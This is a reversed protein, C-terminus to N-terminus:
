GMLDLLSTSPSESTRGDRLRIEAHGSKKSLNLTALDPFLRVM